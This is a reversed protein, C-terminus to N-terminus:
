RGMNVSRGMKNVTEEEQKEAGKEVVFLNVNERRLVLHDEKPTTM